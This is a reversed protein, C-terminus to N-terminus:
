GPWFSRRESTSKSQYDVRLGSQRLLQAAGEILKVQAETLAQDRKLQEIKDMMERWRQYGKADLTLAVQFLQPEGDGRKQLNVEREWPEFGERTLRLRHLGPFAEFTGPASGIAVGDLEVTVAMPQLKYDNGKLVYRGDDDKVVEPVSMDQMACAIAFGVKAEQTRPANVRGAAIARGLKVGSQAAADALLDDLVTEDVRTQGGNGDGGRRVEAVINGATESGGLAIDLVKYTARLRHTDTTRNIGLDPRNTHISDVGYSTISGVLLYDVGMNQALRLASTSDELMRDVADSMLRNDDVTKSRDDVTRREREDEARQFRRLATVTDEPSVVRIGADTVEGIIMDEFVRTKQDDVKPSRNKIFIAALLPRGREREVERVVKEYERITTITEREVPGSADPQAMAPLTLALCLVGWAAAIRGLTAGFQIM